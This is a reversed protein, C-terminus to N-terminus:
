LGEFRADEEGGIERTDQLIHRPDSRDYRRIGGGSEHFRCSM